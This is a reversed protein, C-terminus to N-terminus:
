AMGAILARLKSLRAGADEQPSLTSRLGGAADMLLILATHDMTYGGGERPVKRAFVRYARVIGAVEEPTGTLGLIRPDFSSLYSALQEPTDREPDVTVFLMRLRGADPGLAGLAQSMEFLATPCVDPCHTFGFFIAYPTGSLSASEFPAGTHSTLRFPGGISAAPAVNGPPATRRLGLGAVFTALGLLVALVAAPLLRAVWRSTPRPGETGTSM